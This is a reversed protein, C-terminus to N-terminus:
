VEPAIWRGLLSATAQPNSSALDRVQDLMMSREVESEGVVLGPMADEGEGVDGIMDKPMEVPPPLGALAEASPMRSQRGAKRVMMVMLGLSVVALVAVVVTDMLGGGNGLLGGGAGAVGGFLGARQAEGAAAPASVPILAVAVEGPGQETRLHPSVQSEIDRKIEDWALKIQDETPREDASSQEGAVAAVYDKPVNISAVLRTPMGKPDTRRTLTEGVHNEMTTETLSEESSTGTGGGRNVDAGVNSRLGPEGAGTATSQSNSKVSEHGLLSVTGGEEATSFQRREVDERAIDVQATVAVIVGPIHGLLTLLKARTLQEVAASHELYNSAGLEGEGSSSFQRGNTGDIIRVNRVDLGARAGAILNAVADVTHQSLSGTGECFITASATPERVALGIGTARPVDLIVTASRVGKFDSIVRALENQLAITFLQENQERSNTWKQKDVLNGFLVATDDPLAGSEALTALAISRNGPSVYVRGDRLEAPIGSAQLVRVQDRNPDAALLEEMSAGGAYQAVIFMAMAVIVALSGILLKQTPTLRGLQTGIRAILRRLQEVASAEMGRGRM